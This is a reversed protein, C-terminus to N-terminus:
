ECLPRPSKKAVVPSKIVAVSVTPTSSSGPAGVADSLRGCVVLGPTRELLVGELKELTVTGIDRRPSLARVTAGIVHSLHLREAIEKDSLGAALAQLVEGERPTLHEIARREARDRERRQSALRRLEIVEHPTLM